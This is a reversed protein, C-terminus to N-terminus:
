LRMKKLEDELPETYDIKSDEREEEKWGEEPWIELKNATGVLVAKKKLSVMERQKAPLLIRGQEDLSLERSGGILFRELKRVAVAKEDKGSNPLEQIAKKIAKWAEPIYLRLNKNHEPFLAYSVVVQNGHCEKLWSRYRAPIPMRGKDDVTVENTGNFMKVEFPM